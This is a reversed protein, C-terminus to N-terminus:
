SWAHDSLPQRSTEVRIKKEAVWDALDECLHHFLNERPTEPLAALGVWMNRGSKKAAFLAEDALHIVQEWTIAEPDEKLFPYACFGISCTKHIERDDGIDFPYDEVMSRIREALVCVQDFESFRSVVLFEEGGWRVIYDSQRCAKELLRALQELVRDGAAHGYTDNVDKFRDMDLVLFVLDSNEPVTKRFSSADNYDRKLKSLDGQIHRTLFRRNHLGTLQDTLSLEELREYADELAQNKEMLEKTRQEIKAELERHYAELKAKLEFAEVAASVTMLFDHRDVPKMLFRYIQAENVSDIIANVDAYGTLIIRITNPILDKVKTFFEIGTMRPMRQDCVIVAIQNPDAMSEVMSLAEVGDTATLIQYRDGLMYELSSLNAPEDDVLLITHRKSVDGHALAKLKEKNFLGM